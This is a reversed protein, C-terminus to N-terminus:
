TNTLLWHHRRCPAGHAASKCETRLQGSHTAHCNCPQNPVVRPANDQGKYPEVAQIRSATARGRICRASCARRGRCTCAGPEASTPLAVAPSGRHPGLAHLWCQPMCHQMHEAIIQYCGMICHASHMLNWQGFGHVQMETGLVGCKRRM